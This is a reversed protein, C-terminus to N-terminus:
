GIAAVDVVMGAVALAILFFGLGRLRDDTGLIEAISRRRTNGLADELVGFVAARIEGLARSFTVNALANERRDRDRQANAESQLEIIDKAPTLGVSALRDVDATTM